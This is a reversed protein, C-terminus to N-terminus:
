YCRPVLCPSSHSSLDLGEKWQIRKLPKVEELLYLCSKHQDLIKWSYSVCLSTHHTLSPFGLLHTPLAQPLKQTRIHRPRQSVNLRRVVSKYWVLGLCPIQWTPQASVASPLPCWWDCMGSMERAILPISVHQERDASDFLSSQVRCTSRAPAM